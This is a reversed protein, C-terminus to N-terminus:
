IPAQEDPRQRDVVLVLLAIDDNRSRFPLIAELKTQIRDAIDDATGGDRAADSVLELWHAEDLDHPPPLDTAGDTHFVMVDGAALALTSPNVVIDDIAGLLTGPAGVFRSGSGSVLVPLPHGGCSVTVERRDRQVTAYVCTLFTQSGSRRVARNLSHLVGEHDDGHWASDRITHRAIGTLAAAAPGTGCVDGLVVAFEDDRELEFLDYFDGGVETSEGNPWYRVATDIDPIRPLSAPLLSRQLTQAIDREREHLRLNEITSAVRGALTEALALDDGAYRRSETTAIFQLAGVVRGRKKMPVTIMSRLDLEVVIDRAEAEVDFSALLADTIEPYFEGVGTRIVAPVGHPADPDYPFREQMERAYAIMAPDIHAVEVDPSGRGDPPLVHITCWDGLRPVASRTVNTMVDRVTASSNLVENIQALFELRERQLRENAAAHAALDALRQHEIAQEVQDTVDMTCGVTGTVEGRDDLTVGGVGAIWHVSGDPWVVRHEVRYTSKERVAEDVHALVEVRDDPHLLSVYTEFRGDFGGAGVGFLTEMREDWVIEGSPLDWRWTGLGGAELALSFQESLDRSRQEAIRLAGVDESSGVIAITSGHQDLMVRAFTHVRMTDGLRHMVLRDGSMSTGRAVSELDEANQEAQHAPALVDLVSRGLVEHEAWGYLEEAARNWLVILGGPDTVVVARALVDLVARSDIAPRVQEPSM